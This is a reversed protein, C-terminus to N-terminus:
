AATLFMYRQYPDELSRDMSMIRWGPSNKELWRENFSTEGYHVEKAPDPSHHPFYAFGSKEHAEMAREAIGKNADLAWYEIPRITICLVAGQRAHRRLAALAAVAARESLHTFISFAFAFDFLGNYPLDEPLEDSRAVIADFGATRCHNLSQEWADVGLIDRTYYSFLRLFRGYGCGFDLIRKQRLTTGTLSTFNDACSRVFPISQQLLAAGSTGTWQTTVEASAMPPLLSSLRPFPPCPMNWLVTAFDDLGLKAVASFASERSDISGDNEIAQLESMVHNFFM